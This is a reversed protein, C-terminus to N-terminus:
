NSLYEGPFTQSRAVVQREGVRMHLDAIGCFRDDPNGAAACLHAVAPSPFLSSSHRLRHPPHQQHSRHVMPHMVPIAVTVTARIVVAVMAMVLVTVVTVTVVAMTIAMVVAM